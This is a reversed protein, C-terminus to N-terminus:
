SVSHWTKKLAVLSLNNVTSGALGAQDIPQNVFNTGDPLLSGGLNRVREEM